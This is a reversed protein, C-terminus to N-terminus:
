YVVTDYNTLEPLSARWATARLLFDATETGALYKLQPYKSIGADM